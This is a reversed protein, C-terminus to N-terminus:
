CEVSIMAIDFYDVVNSPLIGLLQVNISLTEAEVTVITNVRKIMRKFATHGSARIM